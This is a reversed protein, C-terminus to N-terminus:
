KPEKVWVDLSGCIRCPVPPPPSHDLEQLDGCSRCNVVWVPTSGDKETMQEVGAGRM